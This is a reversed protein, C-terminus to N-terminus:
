AASLCRVAMERLVDEQEHPRQIIEEFARIFEQQNDILRRLTPLKASGALKGVYWANQTFLNFSSKETAGAFHRGYATAAKPLGDLGRPGVRVEGADALARVQLLIRNRNQLASIIPRSDGGTFFHRHLAALTWPLDGSFFAEAAEFFDGEATNPTLEAVHAEEIVAPQGNAGDAYTALKRTEEILLRTNAGVKALLLQAAGDGFTVGLERAEALIVGALAEAAGDGEGGVLTFDGTKECWKPFARRRDIPAATIIVAVEDPNIGALLQQLDEILKLTSEARGTVTDALFSVDKLWVLRRGGFMSVTQVSERFRNIAAEVEGVNNAFGSIIERAFEDTVDKALEDYRSKGLRNVLFDDPGCIFVFPKAAPM